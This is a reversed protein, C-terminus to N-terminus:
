KKNVEAQMKSLNNLVIQYVESLMKPHLSYFRFSEDFQKKTINNKKLYLIGITIPPMESTMPSFGPIM